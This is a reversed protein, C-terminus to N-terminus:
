LLVGYSKYVIWSLMVMCPIADFFIYTSLHKDTKFLKRAITGIFLLAIGIYWFPTFFLYINYAIYLALSLCGTFMDVAVPKIAKIKDNDDMDSKLVDNIGSSKIRFMVGLLEAIICVLAGVTIFNPQPLM